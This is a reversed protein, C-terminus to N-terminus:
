RQRQRETNATPMHPIPNERPDQPSTRRPGCAFDPGHDSRVARAAQVGPPSTPHASPSRSVPRIVPPKPDPPSPGATPLLQACTPLQCALISFSTCHVMLDGARPYERSEGTDAAGSLRGYARTGPGRRARPGVPRGGVAGLTNQVSRGARPILAPTRSPLRADAKRPLQPCPPSPSSRRRLHARLGPPPLLACAVRGTIERLHALAPPISGCSRRCTDPDSLAGTAPVVMEAPAAPSTRRFAETATATATTTLTLTLTLTLRRDGPAARQGRTGSRADDVPRLTSHASTDVSTHM